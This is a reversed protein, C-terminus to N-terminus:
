IFTVGSTVTIATTLAAGNNIEFQFPQSVSEVTWGDGLLAVVASETLADVSTSESHNDGRDVSLWVELRVNHTGFTEGAEVYPSGALVIASPLAARGPLHSYVNVGLAALVDALETRLVSLTSM